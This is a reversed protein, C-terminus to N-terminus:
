QASLRSLYRPGKACSSAPPWVGRMHDLTISIAPFEYRREKLSLQQSQWRLNGRVHCGNLRVNQECHREKATSLGRLWSYLLDILDLTVDGKEVTTALLAVNLMSPTGQTSRGM